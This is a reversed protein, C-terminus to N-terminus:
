WAGAATSLALVVIGLALVAAFIGSFCQERRARCEYIEFPLSPAWRVVGRRTPYSIYAHWPHHGRQSDTAKKRSSNAPAGGRTLLLRSRQLAVPVRTRLLGELRM